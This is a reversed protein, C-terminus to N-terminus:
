RKEMATCQLMLPIRMWYSARDMTSIRKGCVWTDQSEAFYVAMCHSVTQM